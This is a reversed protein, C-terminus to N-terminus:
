GGYALGKKQYSFKQRVKLKLYITLIRFVLVLIHVMRLSVIGKGKIQMKEAEFDPFFRIHSMIGTAIGKAAWYSAVAQGTHYPDSFGGRLEIDLYSIRIKRLFHRIATLYDLSIVSLNFKSKSKRKEDKATPIEKKSEKAQPKIKSKRSIGSRIAKRFDIGYVKIGFLQLKGNFKRLDAIFGAFAYSVAVLRTPEDFVLRLRISSFIFYAAIAALVAIIFYFIM